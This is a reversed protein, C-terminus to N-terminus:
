VYRELAEDWARGPEDSRSSGTSPANPPRTSAPPMSTTTSSTASSPASMAPAASAPSRSSTCTRLEPESIAEGVDGSADGDGERPRYDSRFSHGREVFRGTRMAWCCPHVYQRNLRAGSVRAGRTSRRWCSRTGAITSPFADVDLAVVFETDASSSASTWLWSTAWTSRPLVVTERRDRGALRGRSGDRSGNDVVLIRTGPRAAAGVGRRDPGRLHKWSNWNVTVITASGPELRDLRRRARARLLPM